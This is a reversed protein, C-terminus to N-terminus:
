HGVQRLLFAPRVLRVLLPLVILACVMNIAMIAIILVGMDAVFKLGSLLCLPLLSLAVISATFAIARGSTNLARILAGDLSHGAGVENGIRSILYIGYDIGVGLGIAAVIMSNVDLGVGLVHMCAIMCLHALNVPALLLLGAMLSRFALSALVVIALNLLGVVVHHYREIIRNIAEQIAITGTGLRVRFDPHEIGVASVAAHAAALAADVTTQTNDAYWLSVTAHQLDDSVVHSYATSSAGMMAGVAAANLARERPDLPLWRPDGGNFLRNVESLYDAFSLSARPAAASNEMQRQLAQMVRVADVSTSTWASKDPDRAELVIELTNAGPFDANIARIATNYESSQHLLNSGPVPNGIRIQAATWWASLSLVILGLLLAHRGHGTLVRGLVGLMRPPTQHTQHRRGPAPLVALLPAMMLVGTPILWLAWFGCFIAHSVMAPIPAAIVVAIGLVDTIISLLSPQAMLEFTRQAAARRGLGDDLCELYRASYQVGHSFSRAILLLPVILLLPEIAIGLHGVFGFAWIAATASSIVPALVGILSRTALWPAVILIGITIAAIGAMEWEYRYVWGILAPRGAMHVAHQEDRAADVLGQVYEFAEGWDVQHEIFTARILTASHDASILFQRVNPSQEVRQRIQAIEAASAPRADDMLPRMDVGYATAQSYRAKETAISVVQAHDVGPALDIDRTLQWVKGLTQPNYIDGDRRKVVVTMTLPSGFSPHDRYVQILPDDTPLLDNFITRLEVGPLGAAFGATIVAFVALSARPRQLLARALAALLRAKSM